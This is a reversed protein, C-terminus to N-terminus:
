GTAPQPVLDEHPPQSRGINRAILGGALILVAIGVAVPIVGFLDAALGTLLTPVLALVNGFLGQTAIVQGRVYSPTRQLLISRAAVNVVSMALGAPISVLMTLFIHPSISLWDTLQDLPLRLVRNLFRYTQEIFGLAFICGAFSAVGLFASYREGIMRALIPAARLGLVLGIAAPAFVFVTNEKSTGLVRELYFPIIVVLASMGVSVLVDDLIAELTPRDKRVFQIGATLTDMLNRRRPRTAGSHDIQIAPLLLTLSGAILWLSGALVFVLEAGGFRLALPALLALGVAQSITLALNFMSQASTYRHPPVIDALLSAESPSYFQHIIWIGFTAAFVSSLSPETAVMFLMFTFRFGNLMVLLHKRSINDVVMGAPLGLLISPINSSAVFLASFFSRNSLDIVLIMLAYLLAGQATQSLLRSWWLLRFDPDRMLSEERVGKKRRLSSPLRLRSQTEDEGTIELTDSRGFLSTVPRLEISVTQKQHEVDDLHDSARRPPPQVKRRPHASPRGQTRSRRVRTRSRSRGDRVTATEQERPEFDSM